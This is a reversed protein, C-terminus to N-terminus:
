STAASQAGSLTARFKAPDARFGILRNGGERRAKDAAIEAEVLLTNEEILRAGRASVGISVPHGRDALRARLGELSRMAQDLDIDPLIVSFAGPGSEFALDSVPFAARITRAAEVADTPSAPKGPAQDLVLRAFVLDQDNSAAREIEAALRPPLHEAWVLGTAPSTLSRVRREAAPAGAVPAGAGPPAPISPGTIPTLGQLPGPPAPAKGVGREETLGMALLMFIGCGLLFALFLYLDDRLIPFLDERGFVVSLSDVVVGGGIPLTVLAEYGKAVQYVPVGRWQPTIEAPSVLWARSRTMLWLIGDADSRTTLLLLRPEALFAERMGSKFVPHAWPDIAPAKAQTRLSAAKDALREASSRAAALNARRTADIRYGTLGTIFLFFAVSVGLFIWSYQREM